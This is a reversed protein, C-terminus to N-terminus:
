RAVAVSRIFEEDGSDTELRLRLLYVGPAVTDGDRDRGDWEYALPQGGGGTAALDAVAVGDLRHLSVRPQRDTRVLGLTLRLVDHIGDGNPSFVRDCTLGYVFSRRQYVEPVFVKDASPTRAVVGQWVGAMTTNTVSAAVVTPNAVLRARFRVTVSDRLVRQPLQVVLSDGHQQAPAIAVERGAVAARVQEVQGPVQLIVRDYGPDGAAFRPWLTYAFETLSDLAAVHPLIEGTLGDAVLPPNYVLSLGKLVPMADANRGTLFLRVQLYRRPTPSLFAAGSFGHVDSWDSWDSGPRTEDTIRGQSVKPLKRYKEETVEVEQTGQKAFYHKIAEFTNGTKTQVEIETGPPQDAQWEVRSISRAAGFDIYQSAMAVRAPYGEAHYVFIQLARTWGFSLRRDYHWFLLRIPRTPFQLDFIWSKAGIENNIESLLEYSYDGEEPTSGAISAAPTGDSTTFTTGEWAVQRDNDMAYFWPSVSQVVPLWVVRDVRFTNLMDLKFWMGALRWGDQRGANHEIGWGGQTSLDGSILKEVGASRPSASIAGGWAATRLAINEGLTEVEVEALAADTLSGEAVFRIFRIPDFALEDDPSLFQGTAGSPNRAVLDYEVVRSTNAKVTGGVRNFYVSGPSATIELGPSTYVSFFRFPRAGTTDPFVLRIRTALVLRRLDIELWWEELPRNQEPQWWTDHRQDRIRDVRDQNTPTRAIRSGHAGIAKAVFDAADALANLDKGFRKVHIGDDEVRILGRPYDWTDWANDRPIAFVQEASLPQLCLLLVGAVLLAMM